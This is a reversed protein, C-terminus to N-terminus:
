TGLLAPCAGPRSPMNPRTGDWTDRATEATEAETIGMASIKPSLLALRNLYIGMPDNVGLMSTYGM